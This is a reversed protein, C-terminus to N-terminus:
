ISPDRREYSSSERGENGRGPACAIQRVTHRIDLLVLFPGTVVALVLFTAAMFSLAGVFKWAVEPTLIAGMASMIPVTAHYGVVGAIALSIWLAFELLAAYSAVILRTLM